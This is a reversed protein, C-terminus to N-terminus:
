ACIDQVRAHHVHWRVGTATFIITTESATNATTGSITRTTADFSFGSPLSSIQYTIAHLGPGIAKPLKVSVAQECGFYLDDETDAWELNTINIHLYRTLRQVPTSTDSVSIGVVYFGKTTPTGSITRTAATYSLGTPLGSISINYTGSGGTPAPLAFPTILRDRQFTRDIPTAMRLSMVTIKFTLSASQQAAGPADVAEYTVTWVGDSTPIGTIQRSLPNFVLGPPLGTVTYSYPSVGGIAAPLQLPTISEDRQVTEDDIVSEFRLVSRVTITFSTSGFKQPTSADVASYTVTFVGPVSLTSASIVRTFENFSAGPPLGDVKYQYPATGGTAVGLTLFMTGGQLFTQDTVAPLTLGPAVSLTFSKNDSGSTNTATVTIQYTGLAARGTIAGTSTNISVGSPLGTASWTVPATGQLLVPIISDDTNPQWYQTEIADIVPSLVQGALLATSVARENLTFQQVGKEDIPTPRLLFKKAPVTPDTYPTLNDQGIVVADGGITIANDGVDIPIADGREFIALSALDIGEVLFADRSVGVVPVNFDISIDYAEGRKFTPPVDVWVIEPESVQSTDCLFIREVNSVALTQLNIDETAVGKYQVGFSFYPTLEPLTFMVDVTGYVSQRVEISIKDAASGVIDRLVFGEAVIGYADFPMNQRLLSFPVSFTLDDQVERNPSPTGWNGQITLNPAAM